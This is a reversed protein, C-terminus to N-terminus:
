TLTIGVEAWSNVFAKYFDAGKKMEIAARDLIAQKPEPQEFFSHEDFSNQLNNKELNKKFSTYFYAGEFTRKVAETFIAKKFKSNQEVFSKDLGLEVFGKIYDTYVDFRDKLKEISTDLIAQKVEPSNIIQDTDLVGETKQRNVFNKFSFAGEAAKQMAENKVPGQQDTGQRDKSDATKAEKSNDNLIREYADRIYVSIYKADEETLTPHKKKYVDPHYEKVLTKWAKKVDEMSASKSLGLREFDGMREFDAAKKAGKAM